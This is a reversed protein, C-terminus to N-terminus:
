RAYWVSERTIKEGTKHSDALKPQGGPVGWVHTTHPPLSPTQFHKKTGGGEKAHRGESEERCGAGGREHLAGDWCELRRLGHGDGNRDDDAASALGCPEGRGPQGELGQRGQTGHWDRKTSTSHFGDVDVHRANRQASGGV